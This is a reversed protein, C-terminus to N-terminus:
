LIPVNRIFLGSFREPQFNQRLFFAIPCGANMFMLLRTNATNANGNEFAVTSLANETIAITLCLILFLNNGFVVSWMILTRYETALVDSNLGDSFITFSNVESSTYRVFVEADSFSLSKLSHNSMIYERINIYRLQLTMQPNKYTFFTVKKKVTANSLPPASMALVPNCINM